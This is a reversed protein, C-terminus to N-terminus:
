ALAELSSVDRRALRVLTVELILRPDPARRIEIAAEGLTELAVDVHIM